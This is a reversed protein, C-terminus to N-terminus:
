ANALTKKRYRVTKDWKLTRGFFVNRMALWLGHTSALMSITSSVAILPMMRIVEPQRDRIAAGMM